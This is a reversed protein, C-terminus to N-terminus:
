RGEGSPLVGARWDKRGDSTRRRFLWRVWFHSLDRVSKLVVRTRAGSASGGTRPIYGITVETLKYGMDRAKILVEAQIFASDPYEIQIEQLFRTRYMCIYQFQHIPMMFLLRVLAINIVSVAKRRFSTDRRDSRLGVIIDADRAASLYKPLDDLDMALDSPIFITYEGAANTFGTHLARGIGMNQAHHLVRVRDDEEALGDALRATADSSGDDVILLEYEVSLERLKGILLATNALLNSEENYAPMVVTLHPAVAM